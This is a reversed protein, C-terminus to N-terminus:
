CLKSKNRLKQSRSPANSLSQQLKQRYCRPITVCTFFFNCPFEATGPYDTVVNELQQFSPLLPYCVVACASHEPFSQVHCEAQSVPRHDVLPQARRDRLDKGVRINWAETANPVPFALRSPQCLRSAAATVGSTLLPVAGHAAYPRPHARGSSHWLGPCRSLEPQM